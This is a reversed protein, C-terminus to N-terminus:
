TKKDADSSKKVTRLFRTKPFRFFNALPCDPYLELRGERNCFKCYAAIVGKSGLLFKSGNVEVVLEKCFELLLKAALGEAPTGRLEKLSSLGILGVTDVLTRAPLDHIRRCLFELYKEVATATVGYRRALVALATPDGRSALVILGAETVKIYGRSYEVLGVEALRRAIRWASALPLSTKKYAHYFRQSDLSARLLALEREELAKCM